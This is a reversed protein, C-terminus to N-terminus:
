TSRKSGGNSYTVTPSHLKGSEVGLTLIPNGTLPNIQKSVMGFIGGTLINQYVTKSHAMPLGYRVDDFEEVMPRTGDTVQAYKYTSRTADGYLAGTLVPYQNLQDRFNQYEYDVRRGSSTSVNSIVTIARASSAQAMGGQIKMPQMGNGSPRVSTETGAKMLVRVRSLKTASKFAWGIWAGSPTISEFVSDPVGDTANQAANLSGSSILTATDSAILREPTTETAAAYFQMEAINANAGDATVVRVYNFAMSSSLPLEM